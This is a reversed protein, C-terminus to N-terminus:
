QAPPAAEDCGHYRRLLGMQDVAGGIILDGDPLVAIGSLSADIPDFSLIEFDEDLKFLGTGDAVVLEGNPKFALLGTAESPEELGGQLLINDPSRRELFYVLSDPGPAFEWSEAWVCSLAINGDLDLAPSGCFSTGDPGIGAQAEGALSFRALGGSSGPGAWSIGYDLFLGADDDAILADAGFWGNAIVTFPSTWLVTGDAADL